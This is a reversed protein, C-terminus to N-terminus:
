EGLERRLEEADDLFSPSSAQSLKRSIPWMELGALRAELLAVQHRLSEVEPDSLSTATSFAVNAAGWPGAEYYTICKNDAGSKQYDVGDQYSAHFVLIPSAYGRARSAYTIDTAAGSTNYYRLTGSTVIKYVVGYTAGSYTVASGGPHAKITLLTSSFSTDTTTFLAMGAWEADPYITTAGGAAHVAPLTAGEFEVAWKLTITVGMSGTFGGIESAAILALTGHAGEGLSPSNADYWKRASDVPLRLVLRSGLPGFATSTFSGVRQINSISHTVLAASEDATWGFALLGFAASCSTSELEVVLNRPRWRAWLRAEAGLRTEPLFTPALARTWLVDGAKSTGVSVAALVDSGRSLSGRLGSAGASGAAQAGRRGRKKKKKPAAAAPPAPQRGVQAELAHLRARLKANKSKGAM